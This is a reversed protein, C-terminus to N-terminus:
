KKFFRLFYQFIERCRKSIESFTVIIVMIIIAVYTIRRYAEAYSADWLDKIKLIYYEKEEKSGWEKKGTGLTLYCEAYIVSAHLGHRNKFRIIGLPLDRKGIEKFNGSNELVIKRFKSTYYPNIEFYVEKEGFFIIDFWKKRLTLTPKKVDVEELSLIKM